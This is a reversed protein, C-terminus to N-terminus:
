QAHSNYKRKRDMILLMRQIRMRHMRQLLIPYLNGILNIIVLMITLVFFGKILALLTVMDILVLAALHGFESQKSQYNLNDLGNKTGDFYKKRNHEKGWFFFLLLRRFLDVRLLAYIQKLERGNKITYYSPPLIRHTPFVFGPFAFIGTIFLCLLFAILTSETARLSSTNMLRDIMVYTRYALFVSFFIFLVKKGM